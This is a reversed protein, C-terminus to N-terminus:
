ARGQARGPAREREGRRGLREIAEAYGRFRPRTSPDLAADLDVFMQRRSGAETTPDLLIFGSTPPGPAPVSESLWTAFDSGGDPCVARITAARVRAVHIVESSWLGVIVNTVTAWGRRLAVRDALVATLYRRNGDYSGIADQM